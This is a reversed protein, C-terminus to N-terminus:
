FRYGVQVTFNRIPEPRSPRMAYLRNGVNRAIVNINLRDDVAYGVRADFVWDGEIRDAGYDDLTYGDESVFNVLDEFEPQFAEPFSGYYVSTGVSWKRVDVQVDGNILHRSRMYLLYDAALSDVRGGMGGFFEGVFDDGSAEFRDLNVPLTYTYGIQPTIVWEGLRGSGQWVLEYGAILARDVNVPYFGIFFDTGEFLEPNTINSVANFEVFNAYQQRFVTLDVYSTWEGIKVGQTVGAEASWGREAVLDANPLIALGLLDARIYREAVTPVRYSQGFSAKVFTAKGVQVNVGSRFVPIDTEVITDVGNVEYRVGGDISLTRGEGSKAVWDLQYEGQVFAGAYYNSHRGEFLNSVSTGYNSQIDPTLIFRRETFRSDALPKEWQKQYLYNITAQNSIADATTESGYRKLYLWRTDLQHRNGASDTYHLFPDVTARLYRDRGVSIARLADTNLGRAFFFRQGREYQVNGNVGYRLGEHRRSRYRTKVHSRVRWTDNAELYSNHAYLNGGAVLDVNGIRQSYNGSVGNAGRPSYDDWWRQGEVPPMDYRMSFTTVRIDPRSSSPWRTIANVVGNLASSGYIVSSSGKIVELQQLNELPILSMQVEGLDPSVISLGDVLVATRSGVGYAYSNGGRISVQSDQVVVGPVRKVAEGVDQANTKTVFEEGVVAMSVTETQLEREFQSASVVAVSLTNVDPKLTFQIEAERSAGLRVERTVPLYGIFSCKVTVKQAEPLLLEFRGDAGSVAGKEGALISAGPLPERTEFDVVNGTIRISQAFASTGALLSIALMWGACVGMWRTWNMM